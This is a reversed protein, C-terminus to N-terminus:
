AGVNGYMREREDPLPKKQGYAFHVNEYTRHEQCEAMCRKAMADYEESSIGCAISMQPKLATLNTAWVQKTLQGLKGAWEGGPFSVFTKKVNVLGADVLLTDLKRSIFPDVGRAQLTNVDYVVVGGRMRRRAGQRGEEISRERPRPLEVESGRNCSLVLQWWAVERLGSERAGSPSGLWSGRFLPQLSPAGDGRAMAM